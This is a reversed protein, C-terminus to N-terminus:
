RDRGAGGRCSRCFCCSLWPADSRQALTADADVLLPWTFALVGITTVLALTATTRRRMGVVHWHSKGVTRPAVATM